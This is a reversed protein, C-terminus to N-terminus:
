YINLAIGIAIIGYVLSTKIINIGIKLVYESFDKKLKKIIIFITGSILTTLYCGIWKVLTENIENIFTLHVFIFTILGTLIYVSIRKKGKDFANEAFFVGPVWIFGFMILKEFWEEGILDSFLLLGLITTLTYTVALTLPFKEFLKKILEKFSLLKEKINFKM